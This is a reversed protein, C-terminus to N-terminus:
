ALYNGFENVRTLTSIVQGAISKMGDEGDSVLAGHDGPSAGKGYYRRFKSNPVGM